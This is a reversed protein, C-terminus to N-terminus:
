KIKQSLFYLIKLKWFLLLHIDSWSFINERATPGWIHLSAVVFFGVRFNSHMNQVSEIFSVIMFIRVRVTSM